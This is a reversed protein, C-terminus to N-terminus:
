KKYRSVTGAGPHGFYVWDATVVILRPYAGAPFAPGSAILESPAASAAQKPRRRLAGTTAEFWYLHSDDGVLSVPKALGGAVENSAGGSTKMVRHVTTNTTFYVSADDAFLATPATAGSWSAGNSQTWDGRHIGNTKSDAWYIKTADGAVAVPTIGSSSNHRQEDSFDSTRYSEVYNNWAALVRGNAVVVDRGGSEGGHSASPYRGVNTDNIWYLDNGSTFLSTAGDIAPVSQAAGGGPTRRVRQAPGSVAVYVGDDRVAIARMAGLGTALQQVTGAAVRATDDDRGGDTVPTTPDPDTDGNTGAPAPAPAGAGSETGSPAPGGPTVDSTGTGAIELGCAALMISALATGWRAM